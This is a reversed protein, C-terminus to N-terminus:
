GGLRSPSCVGKMEKRMVERKEENGEGWLENM